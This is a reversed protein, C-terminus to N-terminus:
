CLLGSVRPSGRGSEWCTIKKQLIGVRQPFDNTCWKKKDWRHTKQFSWGWARGRPRLLFILGHSRSCQNIWFLAQSACTWGSPSRRLIQIWPATRGFSEHHFEIFNQATGGESGSLIIDLFSNSTRSPLMDCCANATSMRAPECNQLCSIKGRMSWLAFSELLSRAASRSAMALLKPGWNSWNAHTPM